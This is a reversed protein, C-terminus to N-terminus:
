THTYILFYILFSGRDICNISFCLFGVLKMFYIFEEGKQREATYEGERIGAVDARGGSSEQISCSATCAHHTWGGAVDVCVDLLNSTYQLGKESCCYRQKTAWTRQLAM